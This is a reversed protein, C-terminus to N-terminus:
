GFDSGARVQRLRDEKEKKAKQRELDDVDRQLEAPLVGMAQFRANRLRAHLFAKTSVQAGL